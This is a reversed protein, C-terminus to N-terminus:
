GVRRRCVPIEEEGDALIDMGVRLALHNIQETGKPIHRELAERLDEESVIGLMKNIAGVAVVNATFSKGVRERAAKLIPVRVLCDRNMWSPIDLSEDAMIMCDAPLNKGYLELSSQTLALLFTPKRIKPFGIAEESVVVEAKCIGGRAEPGYSQTQAANKGAIIAAEALVISALIVGQGGSGALRIEMQESM